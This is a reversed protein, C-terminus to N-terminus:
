RCLETRYDSVESICKNLTNRASYFMGSEVLDVIEMKYIEIKNRHEIDKVVQDGTPKTQETM